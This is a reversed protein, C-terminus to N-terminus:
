ELFELGFRTVRDDLVRIWRIQARLPSMRGVKVRCRRGESLYESGRSVALSCGGMPAEEIILAVEQPTFPRDEAGFDLLAIELPDGPFRILRRKAGLTAHSM